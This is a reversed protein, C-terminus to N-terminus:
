DDGCKAVHEIAFESILCCLFLLNFGTSGLGQSSWTPSKDGGNGKGGKKGRGPEGKGGM